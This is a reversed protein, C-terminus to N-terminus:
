HPNDRNSGEGVKDQNRGEGVFVRLFAERLMAAADTATGATSLPTELLRIAINERRIRIANAVGPWCLGSTVAGVITVIASQDSYVSWGLVLLGGLVFASAFGYCLYEGLRNEKIAQDIVERASRTQAM